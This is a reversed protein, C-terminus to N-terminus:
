SISINKKLIKHEVHLVPHFKSSLWIMDLTTTTLFYVYYYAFFKSPVRCLTAKKSFVSCSICINSKLVARGVLFLFALVEEYRKSVTPHM